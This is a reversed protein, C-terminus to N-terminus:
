DRLGGMDWLDLIGSTGLARAVPRLEGSSNSFDQGDLEPVGEGGMVVSSCIPAEWGGVRVSLPSETTALYTDDARLPLFSQSNSLCGTIIMVALM